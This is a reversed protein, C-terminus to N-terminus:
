SLNPLGLGSLSNSGEMLFPDLPVLRAKGTRLDVVAAAWADLAGPFPIPVPSPKDVLAVYKGDATRVADQLFGLQGQGVARPAVADGLKAVVRPASMATGDASLDWAALSLNGQADPALSLYTEAAGGARAGLAAHATANPMRNFSM